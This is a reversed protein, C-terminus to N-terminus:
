EGRGAAYEGHDRDHPQQGRGHRPRDGRLRAGAAGGGPQDGRDAGGAAGGDHRGTGVRVRSREGPGGRLGGRSERRDDRRDSRRVRGPDGQGARRDAGVRATTRESLRRVEEAVVAFGKGHEGAAAARIAANLALVGTQDAVDKILAVIAGIEQTSTALREIKRATEQVQERIRVMGAANAAVAQAGEGAAERAERAVRASLAANESVQQISVAMEEVATSTDAIRAAQQQASRSLVDTTALIEDTSDGVQQTAANVRGVIQRLEGIMYNFSDAVAGLADASVEAQVTLDGEAAASVEDLLRVIQRQLGAGEAERAAADSTIRDVMANVAGSVQGLEDRGTVPVRVAYDGATIRGAADGLATLPRTVLRTIVAYLLGLSFVLLLFSVLAVRLTTQTGQQVIPAVSKGAFLAGAPRGATDRILLYTTIYDQGLIPNKGIYNQGSKLAAAAPGQLVTDVARTGDAQKITTAVRVFEGDRLQFITAESATLDKTADVLTFDNNVGTGGFQLKGDRVNASGKQDAQYKLFNASSGVESALQSELVARNQGVVLVDIVITLALMVLATVLLLKTAVRWDRVQGPLAPFQQRKHQM